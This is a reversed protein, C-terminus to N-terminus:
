GMVFYATLLMEMYKQIFIFNTLVTSHNKNRNLCRSFKLKVLFIMLPILWEM